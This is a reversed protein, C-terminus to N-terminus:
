SNEENDTGFKKNFEELLTKYREKYIVSFMDNNSENQEKITFCFFPAVFEQSYECDICKLKFEGNEFELDLVEHNSDNGCTLPHMRGLRQYIYFNRYYRKDNQSLKQYESKNM